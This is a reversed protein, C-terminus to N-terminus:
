TRSLIAQLEGILYLSGTVCIIGDPPTQARAASLAETASPALTIRSSDFGQPVVRALMELTAARPNSPQTLVLHQAIPFLVAAIEALDKDRMAGFILTVPAKIFEDLFARLARAGAVNHAGDFLLSPQGERLDLRGAHRSTELGEIM